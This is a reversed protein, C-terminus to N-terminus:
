VGMFDQAGCSWIDIQDPAPSGLQGFWHEMLDTYGDTPFQVPRYLSLKMAGGGGPGSATGDGGALHGSFSQWNGVGGGGGVLIGLSSPDSWIYQIFEQFLDHPHIPTERYGSFVSRGEDGFGFEIMYDGTISGNNNADVSTPTCTIADCPTVLIGYDPNLDFFEQLQEPRFYHPLIEGNVEIAVHGTLDICPSDSPSLNEVLQHPSICFHHETPNVDAIGFGFNEFSAEAPHKVTMGLNQDTPNSVLVIEEPLVVEPVEDIGPLFTIFGSVLGNTPPEAPGIYAIDTGDEFAFQSFVIVNTAGIDVNYRLGNQTAHHFEATNDELITVLGSSVMCLLKDTTSWMLGQEEVPFADGYNYQIGVAELATVMAAGFPGSYAVVPTPPQGDDPWVAYIISVNGDPTVSEWQQCKSIHFAM